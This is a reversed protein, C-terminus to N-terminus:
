EAPMRAARSVGLKWIAHDYGCVPCTIYLWQLEDSEEIEWGAEHPYGWIIENSLDVKASPHKPNVRCVPDKLLKRYKQASPYYKRLPNEQPNRSLGKGHHAGGCRCVCEEHKAYWCGPSCIGQYPPAAKENNLNLQNKPIM